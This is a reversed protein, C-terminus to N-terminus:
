AVWEYIHQIYQIGYDSVRVCNRPVVWTSGSEDEDGVKYAGVEATVRFHIVQRAGIRKVATVVCPVLGAFSDLFAKAGTTYPKM